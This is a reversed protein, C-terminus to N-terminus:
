QTRVVDFHFEGTEWKQDTAQGDYYVKYVCLDGCISCSSLNVWIALFKFTNSLMPTRPPPPPHAVMDIYEWTKTAIYWFLTGWIWGYYRFLFIIKYKSQKSQELESITYVSSNINWCIEDAGTIVIHMYAWTKRTQSLYYSSKNFYAGVDEAEVNFNGDKFSTFTVCLVRVKGVSMRKVQQINYMTLVNYVRISVFIVPRTRWSNGAKKEPPPTPTTFCASFFLCIPPGIGSILFFLSFPSSSILSSSSSSPLLPPPPSSLSLSFSLFLSLSLSLHTPILSRILNMSIPHM